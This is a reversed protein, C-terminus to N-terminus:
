LKQESNKLREIQGSFHKSIRPLLTARLHMIAEARLRENLRSVERVVLAPFEERLWAEIEGVILTDLQKLEKTIARAHEVPIELPPLPAAPSVPATSPRPPAQPAPDFPYRDLLSQPWATQFRPQTPSPNAASATQPSPKPAAATPTAPQAPPTAPHQAKPPQVAPSTNTVTPAAATPQPHSAGPHPSLPAGTQSKTTQTPATAAAPAAPKPNTAQQPKAPSAPAATEGLDFIVETLVPLDDGTGDNSPDEGHQRLLANAENILTSAVDLEASGLLPSTRTLPTM